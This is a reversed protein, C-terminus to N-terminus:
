DPGGGSGARFAELNPPAKAGFRKRIAREVSAHDLVGTESVLVGLAYMNMSRRFGLRSATRVIPLRRVRHDPGLGALERVGDEDLIVTAEPALLPLSRDLATQTLALLVGAARVRPFAIEGDSLVVESRALSGRAASGLVWQSQVARLGQLVAGEALVVGALVMGQGGEGALLVEHRGRVAGTAGAASEMTEGPMPTV